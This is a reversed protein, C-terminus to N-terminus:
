REALPVASPQDTHTRITRPAPPPRTLSTEWSQIAEVAQRPAVADVDARREHAHEGVEIHLLWRVAGLFLTVIGLKHQPQDVGDVKCRADGDCPFDGSIRAGRRRDRTPQGTVHDFDGFRDQPM